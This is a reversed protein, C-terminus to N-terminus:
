KPDDEAPQPQAGAERVAQRAFLQILRQIADDGAQAQPEAQGSTSSSPVRTM